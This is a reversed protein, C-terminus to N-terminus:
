HGSAVKNSKPDTTVKNLVIIPYKIEFKSCSTSVHYYCYNNSKSDCENISCENISCWVNHYQKQRWNVIIIDMIHIKEHIFVAHHHQIYKVVHM